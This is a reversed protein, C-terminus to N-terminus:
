KHRLGGRQTQQPDAQPGVIGDSSASTVPLVEDNILQLTNGTSSSLEGHGRFLIM